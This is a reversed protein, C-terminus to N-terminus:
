IAVNVASKSHQCQSHPVLEYDFYVRAKKDIDEFLRCYYLGKFYREVVLLRGPNISDCVIDNESYRTM